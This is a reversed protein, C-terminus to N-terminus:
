PKARPAPAVPPVKPKLEGVIAVRFGGRAHSYSAEGIRYRSASRSLWASFATTGGRHVPKGATDLVVESVNGSLDFLGFPNPKKGGVTHSRDDSNTKIWEYADLAEPETGCYWPTTTGARCAFEWQAESPLTYRRGDKRSLWDCFAQADASTVFVVPHQRSPVYSANKWTYEPKQVDRGEGEDWALGGKGSAEAKTVYGTDAVFREFQERTVEHVGMFFPGDVNLTGAPTEGRIENHAWAESETAKIVAEVAEPATGAQARGPPILRFKMGIGNTMEADVGSYKAWADQFEKAKQVDFPAVAPAPLAASDRVFTMLARAPDAPDLAFQTPRAKPAGFMPMCVVLRDGDFRYIGEVSFTSDPEPKVTIEKPDKTPDLTFSGGQVPGKQMHSSTVKNGTFEFRLSRVEAPTLTAGVCKIDVGQWAGQLREVDSQTAPLEKIEIKRFHVV